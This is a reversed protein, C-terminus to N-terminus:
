GRFGLAQEALHNLSYVRSLVKDPQYRATEKFNTHPLVLVLTIVLEPWDPVVSASFGIFCCAHIYSALLNRNTQIKSRIPEFLPLNRFQSILFWILQSIVESM